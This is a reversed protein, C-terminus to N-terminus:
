SGMRNFSRLFGSLIPFCICGLAPNGSEWSSQVNGTAVGVSATLELSNYIEGNRNNNGSKIASNKSICQQGDWSSEFFCVYVCVCVPFVLLPLVM